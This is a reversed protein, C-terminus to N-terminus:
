DIFQSRVKTNTTRSIYEETKAQVLKIGRTYESFKEEFLDQQIDQNRQTEELCLKLEKLRQLDRELSSQLSEMEYLRYQLDQEKDIQDSLRTAIDLTSTKLPDVGVEMGIKALEELSEKTSSDLSNIELGITKFSNILNSHYQKYTEV